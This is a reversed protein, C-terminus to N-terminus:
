RPMEPVGSQGVTEGGKLNTNLSHILCDEM